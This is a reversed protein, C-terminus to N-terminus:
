SFTSLLNDMADALARIQTTVQQLAALQEPKLSAETAQPPTPPDPRPAPKPVDTPPAEEEKFTVYHIIFFKPRKDTPHLPTVVGRKRLSEHGRLVTNVPHNDEQAWAKLKTLLGGVLNQAHIQGDNEQRIIDLYGRWALTEEVTLPSLKDPFDPSIGNVVGADIQPKTMPGRRKPTAEPLKAGAIVFLPQRREIKNLSLLGCTTESKTVVEYSDAQKHLCDAIKELLDAASLGSRPTVKLGATLPANKAKCATILVASHPNSCLSLCIHQKGKHQPCTSGLPLISISQIYKELLITLTGRIAISITLEEATYKIIKIPSM